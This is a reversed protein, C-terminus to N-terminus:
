YTRSIVHPLGVQGDPQVDAFAFLIEVLRDPGM